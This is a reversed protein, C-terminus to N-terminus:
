TFPMRCRLLYSPTSSHWLQWLRLQTRRSVPSRLTHLVSSTMPSKPSRRPQLMVATAFNRMIFSASLDKGMDNTSYQSWLKTPIATDSPLHHLVTLASGALHSALAQEKQATSWNSADAIINLQSIYPAWPATCDFTLPKVRLSLLGRPNQVLPNTTHHKELGLFRSELRQLRETLSSTLEQISSAMGQHLQNERRAYSAEAQKFHHTILAVLQSATPESAALSETGTRATLDGKPTPRAAMKWPLRQGPHLGVESM